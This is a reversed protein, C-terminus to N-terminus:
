KQFTISEFHKNMETQTRVVLALPHNKRLMDVQTTYPKSAANLLGDVEFCPANSCM